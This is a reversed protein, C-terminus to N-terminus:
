YCISEQKFFGTSGGTGCGCSEPSAGLAMRHAARTLSWTQKTPSWTGALGRANLLHGLPLLSTRHLIEAQCYPLDPHLGWTLRDGPPTAMPVYNGLGEPRM